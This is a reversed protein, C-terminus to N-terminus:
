HHDASTSHEELIQALTDRLRLLGYIYGSDLRSPAFKRPLPTLESLSLLHRKKLGAPTTVNRRM